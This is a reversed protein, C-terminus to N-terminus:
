EGQGLQQLREQVFARSAADLGELGLAQAYAARAAAPQGSNELAIARGLPWRPDRPDLEAAHRYAEAAAAHQGARAALAAFLAQHALRDAAMRARLFALAEQGRGQDALMRAMLEVLEPQRPQLELGRVLEIEAAQPQRARLLLRVLLERARVHEPQAQVAQRLKEMALETRGKQQLQWAEAYLAEAQQAPTLRPTTHPARKEGRENGPMTVGQERLSRGDRAFTGTPKAEQVPGKAPATPKSAGADIAAPPSPKTSTALTLEWHQLGDDSKFTRLRVDAASPWTFGISWGEASPQSRWDRLSPHPKDQTASRIGPLFLEVREDARSLRVAEPLPADFALDLHLEQGQQMASLMVLRAENVDGAVKDAAGRPAEDAPVAAPARNEAEPADAVTAPIPPPPQIGAPTGTKGLEVMWAPTIFTDPTRVVLFLTAALALLGLVFPWFLRSLRRQMAQEIPPTVDTHQLAEIHGPPSDGRPRFMEEAATGPPSKRAELDKLMDNILSM